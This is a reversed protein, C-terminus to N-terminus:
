KKTEKFISKIIIIAAIICLLMIWFYWTQLMMVLFGLFPISFIVKGLVQNFGISADVAADGKIGQTKIVDNVSDIYIIRHTVVNGSETKFTIDDDLGVNNYFDDKTKYSKDIVLSWQPIDPDMSSTKVYFIKHGTLLLVLIMLLLISLIITVINGFNFKKKM